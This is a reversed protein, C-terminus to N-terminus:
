NPRGAAHLRMLWLFWGPLNWWAPRRVRVVETSREKYSQWAAYWTARAAEREARRAVRAQEREVEQDLRVKWMRYLPHEDVLV